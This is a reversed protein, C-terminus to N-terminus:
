QPLELEELKVVTVEDGERNGELSVYDYDEPGNNILGCDKEEGGLICDSQDTFKLKVNLAIQGPEDWLFVWSGDRVFLSGQQTFNVVVSPTQTETETGSTLSGSDVANDRTEVSLPTKEVPTKFTPSGGMRSYILYAGGGIVIGLVIIALLKILLSGQNKM